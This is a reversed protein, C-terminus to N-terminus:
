EINSYPIVKKKKINNRLNRQGFQEQQPVGQIPIDIDHNSLMFQYDGDESEDTEIRQVGSINM